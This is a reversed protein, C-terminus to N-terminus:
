KGEGEKDIIATGSISNTLRVLHAMADILTDLVVFYRSELTEVQSELSKLLVSLQRDHIQQTTTLGARVPGFNKWVDGSEAEGVLRLGPTNKPSDETRM